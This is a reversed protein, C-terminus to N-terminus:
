QTLEQWYTLPSPSLLLAGVTMSHSHDPHGSDLLQAALSAPDGYGHWNWLMGALSPKHALAEDLEAVRAARKATLVALKARTAAPAPSNGESEQLADKAATLVL